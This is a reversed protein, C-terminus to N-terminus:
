HWALAKLPADVATFGLERLVEIDKDQRIGLRLRPHEGIEEKIADLQWRALRPAQTIKVGKHGALCSLDGCEVTYCGLEVHLCPEDRIYDHKWSTWVASNVWGQKNPNYDQMYVVREEFHPKDENTPVIWVREKLVTGRAFCTLDSVVYEIAQSVGHPDAPLAVFDYMQM